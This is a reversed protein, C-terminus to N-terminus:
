FYIYILNFFIDFFKPGFKIWIFGLPAGVVFVGIIKFFKDVSEITDAQQSYYREM